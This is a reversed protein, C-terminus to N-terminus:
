EAKYFVDSFFLKGGNIRGLKVTTQGHTYICSYIHIVVIDIPGNLKLVVFYLSM